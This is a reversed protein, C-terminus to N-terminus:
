PVHEEEIDKALMELIGQAHEAEQDKVDYCPYRSREDVDQEILVKRCTDDGTETRRTGDRSHHSSVDHQKRMLENRRYHTEKGDLYRGPHEDTDPKGELQDIAHPRKTGRRTPADSICGVDPAEHNPQRHDNWETCAPFDFFTVPSVM